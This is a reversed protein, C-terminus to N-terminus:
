GRSGCCGQGRARGAPRPTPPGRARRFSRRTVILEDDTVQDAVLQLVAADGLRVHADLPRVDDDVQGADLVLTLREVGDVHGADDRESRHVGAGGLLIGRRGRDGARRDAPDDTGPDPGVVVTPAVTPAPEVGGDVVAAAVVVASGDPKALGRRHRRGGLRALRRRGVSGPGVVVVTAPDVVSSRRRRRGRGHGEGLRLGGHQALEASAGAEDPRRAPAALLDELAVPGADFRSWCRPQVTM